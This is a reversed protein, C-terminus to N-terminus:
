KVLLCTAPKVKDNITLHAFETNDSIKHEQGIGRDKSRVDRAVTMFSKRDDSVMKITVSIEIPIENGM